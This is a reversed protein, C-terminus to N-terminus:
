PKLQQLTETEFILAKPTVTLVKFASSPLAVAQLETSNDMFMLKWGVHSVGKFRSM